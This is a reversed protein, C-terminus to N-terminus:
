GPQRHVFASVAALDFPWDLEQADRADHLVPVRWGYTASLAPDEDIFVSRFEPARAAALLDLATDCLCCDDTVYLTLHTM